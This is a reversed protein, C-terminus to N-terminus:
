LYLLDSSNVEGYPQEILAFNVNARDTWFISFCVFLCFLVVFNFFFLFVSVCAYSLLLFFCCFCFLVSVVVFIFIFCECM